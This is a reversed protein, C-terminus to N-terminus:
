DLETRLTELSFDQWFGLVVELSPPAVEDALSEM